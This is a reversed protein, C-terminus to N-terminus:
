DEKFFVSREEWDDKKEMDDLRKYLSGIESEQVVLWAVICLGAIAILILAIIVM